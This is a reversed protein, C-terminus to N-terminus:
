DETRAHLRRLLEQDILVEIGRLELFEKAPSSFFHKDGTCIVDARSVAAEVVAQDKLDSIV